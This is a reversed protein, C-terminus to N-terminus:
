KHIPPYGVDNTGSVRHHIKRKERARRMEVHIRGRAFPPRMLTLSLSYDTMRSAAGGGLVSQCQTVEVEIYMRTAVGTSRQQYVYKWWLLKHGVRSTESDM